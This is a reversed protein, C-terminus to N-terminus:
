QIVAVKTAVVWPKKANRNTVEPVDELYVRTGTVHHVTGKAMVQRGAWMSNIYFVTDGEKIEVGFNDKAM